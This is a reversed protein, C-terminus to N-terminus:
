TEQAAVIKEKELKTVHKVLIWDLSEIPLEKQQRKFSVCPEPEDLCQRRAKSAEIGRQLKSVHKM